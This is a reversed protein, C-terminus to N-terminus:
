VYYGFLSLNVYQIRVTATGESVFRTLNDHVWNQAAKFSSNLGHLMFNPIGVIVEINSGALAQLAKPDADFLKVKTIRNAKLLAVVKEPPLPHSAATGWNVGIAGAARFLVLTYISIFLLLFPLKISPM